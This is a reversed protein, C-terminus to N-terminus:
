VGHLFALHAPLFALGAQEIINQTKARYPDLIHSRRM